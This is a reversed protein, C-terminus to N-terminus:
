KKSMGAACVLVWSSDAPVNVARAVPRKTPWGGTVLPIAGQKFHLPINGFSFYPFLKYYQPWVCVCVCQWTCETFWTWWPDCKDPLVFRLEWPRQRSAPYTTGDSPISTTKTASLFTARQHQRSRPRSPIPPFVFIRTALPRLNHESFDIYVHMYKCVDYGAFYNYISDVYFLYPHRSSM